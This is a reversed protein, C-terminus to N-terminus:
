AAVYGMILISIGSYNGYQSKWMRSQVPNIFIFIIIIILTAEMAMRLSTCYYVEEKKNWISNHLEHIESTINEKQM